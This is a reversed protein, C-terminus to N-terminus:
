ATLRVIRLSLVIGGVELLAALPFLLFRGVLTDDLIYLLEPSMLRLYLFMAPVIFALLWIQARQGSSRARVENSLQVNFQVTGSLELLLARARQTPLHNETCIALTEWVLGLNRTRTHSRVERISEHLPGDLLFRQIILELDQQIWSDSCRARAERFAELYTGTSSLGVMLSQLLKTASAESREAQSHVMWDLYLRPILLGAAAGGLALLPSQLWGLAFGFPWESGYTLRSGAAAEV